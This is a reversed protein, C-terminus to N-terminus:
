GGVAFSPMEMGLEHMAAILVCLNHAVVKALVENMQGIESKSRLAEGFKKKIMWFTTEVNSRQHYHSLFTDRQFAFFHQMRYFVSTEPAITPLMGQYSPVGLFPIYPTAGADEVAQLNAKSSYAKDATVDRPTFNQVTTALMPRFFSTDHANGGSMEVATVINTRVGTMAVWQRKSREKGWKHDYWREWRCISFGTSDAAFDTEVAKLPLASVEVLTRLAATMEPSRLYRLVTNFHPDSETHGLEHASRVESDARRASLGSYVRSVCAFAMDSLPMRPRGNGQPPNPLISCLESLMQPFVDGEACQAANYATWDQSYTVRMGETVVTGDPAERRRVIEVAIIHKCPQSRLEFDPCTCTQGLKAPVAAAVLYPNHGSQSPVLWGESGKRLRKTAAIEMARMERADM